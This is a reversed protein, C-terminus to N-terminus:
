YSVPIGSSLLFESTSRWMKLADNSILRRLSAVVTPVLSASTRLWQGSDFVPIRSHQSRPSLSRSRLQCEGWLLGSRRTAPGHNRRAARLVSFVFASFHFETFDASIPLCAPPYQSVYIWGIQVRSPLKASAITSQEKIYDLVKTRIPCRMNIPLPREYGEYGWCSSIRLRCLRM